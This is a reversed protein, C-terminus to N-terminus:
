KLSAIERSFPPLNLRRREQEFAEATFPGRVVREPDANPGDAARIVYFYETVSRDLSKDSFSHPHRAAVIYSEDFGVAFVTEAVRGACGGGGLDYCLMTDWDIDASSLRYPGDIPESSGPGCGAVLAALGLLIRLNM